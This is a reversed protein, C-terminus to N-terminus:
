EAQKTSICKEVLQEWESYTHIQMYQTYWDALSVSNADTSERAKMSKRKPTSSPQPEPEPTNAISEDQAVRIWIEAVKEARVGPWAQVHEVFEKCEKLGCGTRERALKIANIKQNKRLLARVPKVLAALEPATVVETAM